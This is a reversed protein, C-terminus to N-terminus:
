CIYGKRGLKRSSLLFLFSPFFVVPPLPHPGLYLLPFLKFFPFSNEKRKGIILLLILSRLFFPPCFSIFHVIDREHLYLFRLALYNVFLVGNMGNFVFRM